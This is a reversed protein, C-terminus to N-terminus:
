EEPNTLAHTMVGLLAIVGENTITFEVPKLDPMDPHPRIAIAMGRGFGGLIKCASITAKSTETKVGKAILIFPPTETKM